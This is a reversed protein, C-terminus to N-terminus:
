NNRRQSLTDVTNMQKKILIIRTIKIVITSAEQIDQIKIPNLLKELLAIFKEKTQKTLLTKILHTKEEKKSSHATKALELVWEEMSALTLSSMILCNTIFQQKSIARIISRGVKKVTDVFGGQLLASPVGAGTRATPNKGANMKFAM